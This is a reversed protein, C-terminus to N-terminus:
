QISELDKIFQTYIRRHSKADLKVETLNDMDVTIDGKLGKRILKTIRALSEDIKSLKLKYKKILKQTTM